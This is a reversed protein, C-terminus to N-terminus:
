LHVALTGLDGIIRKLLMGAQLVTGDDIRWMNEDQFPDKSEM